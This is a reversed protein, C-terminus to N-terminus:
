HGINQGQCCYPLLVSDCHIGVLFRGENDMAAVTAGHLKYLMLIAEVVEIADAMLGRADGDAVVGEYLGYM